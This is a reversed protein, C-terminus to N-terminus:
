AFHQGDELSKVGMREWKGRGTSDGGCRGRGEGM